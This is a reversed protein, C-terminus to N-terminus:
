RVPGDNNGSPRSEAGAHAGGGVERDSAADEAHLGGSRRQLISLESSWDALALVLGEVDPNGALLEAEIAAVEARCREIERNM